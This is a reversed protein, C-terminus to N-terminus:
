EQQRTAQREMLQRPYESHRLCHLRLHAGPIRAGCTVCATGRRRQSPEAESVVARIRYPQGNWRQM